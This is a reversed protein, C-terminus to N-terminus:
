PYFDGGGFACLLKMADSFRLIEVLRHSLALSKPLIDGTTQWMLNFTQKRGLASM